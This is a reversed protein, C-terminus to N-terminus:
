ADSAGSRKRKASWHVKQVGKARAALNRVRVGRQQALEVAAAEDDDRRDGEAGRDAAVQLLKSRHLLLVVLLKQHLQEVLQM